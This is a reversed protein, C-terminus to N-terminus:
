ASLIRQIQRLQEGSYRVAVGFKQHPLKMQVRLEQLKSYSIKLEEAAEPETFQEIEERERRIREAEARAARVAARAEATTQLLMAELAAIREEAQEFVSETM